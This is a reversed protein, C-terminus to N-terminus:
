GYAIVKIVDDILKMIEDPAERVYVNSTTRVITAESKQRKMIYGINFPNIYIPEGDAMRHLKIFKM